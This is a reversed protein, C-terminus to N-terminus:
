GLVVGDKECLFQPFLGEHYPTLPEECIPCTSRPAIEDNLDVPQFFWFYCHRVRNLSRAVDLGETNPPSMPDLLQTRAWEEYAGSDLELSDIAGYTSYWHRIADVESPQLELREPPVEGNCRLCHLPNDSLLATSMLKIPPSDQCACIEDEPTPPNPKLKLLSGIATAGLTAGQGM